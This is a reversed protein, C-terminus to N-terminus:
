QIMIVVTLVIKPSNPNLSKVDQEKLPDSIISINIQALVDIFIPNLGKLHQNTCGESKM